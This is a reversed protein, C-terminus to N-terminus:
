VKSLCQIYLFFVQYLLIFHQNNINNSITIHIYYHKIVCLHRLSVTIVPTIFSTTLVHFIPFVCNHIEDNRHARHKISTHIHINLSATSNHNTGTRCYPYANWAKEHISLASSPALLRVFTPVKSCLVSLNLSVTLYLSHNIKRSSSLM